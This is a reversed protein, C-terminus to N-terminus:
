EMREDERLRKISYEPYPKCERIGEELLFILEDITSTRM